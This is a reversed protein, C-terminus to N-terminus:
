LPLVPVEVIRGPLTIELRYAGRALHELRFEGSGNLRATRRDAARSLRLIGGNAQAEGATIQGALCVDGSAPTVELDLEVDDAQYLLRRIHTPMARLGAFQAQVQSDFALAAV